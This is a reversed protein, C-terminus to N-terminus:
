SRRQKQGDKICVPEEISIRKTEAVISRLDDESFLRWGRRDRRVKDLVGEDLRRLLTSRSINAKQCVELTWYYVEGDINFPM